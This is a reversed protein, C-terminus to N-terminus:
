TMTWNTNSADPCHVAKYENWENSRWMEPWIGGWSPNGSGRYTLNKAAFSRFEKRCLECELNDVFRLREKSYFVFWISEADESANEMPMQGHIYGQNDGCLFDGHRIDFVLRMEPFILGFGEYSGKSICSLVATGGKCNLKDRHYAVRFNNNITVSTFATDFLNFRPDKVEKFLDYLFKHEKPMHKKFLKDAERFFPAEAEFSEWKKLTTSTLRAWPIIAQRDLAGVVNSACQNWSQSGFYKKRARKSEEARNEATLFRTKVWNLFWKGREQTLKQSAEKKESDTLTKDKFRKELSEVLKVDVLNDEKVWKALYHWLGWKTNSNVFNEIEEFTADNFEGKNAKNFFSIQGKTLRNECSYILDTGAADGRNVSGSDLSAWHWYDYREPTINVLTKMAKKRFVLVLTGDPLFVDVDETIVEDYDDPTSFKGLWEKDPCDRLSTLHIQRTM